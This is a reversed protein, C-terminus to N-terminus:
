SLARREGSLLPVLDVRELLGAATLPEDLEHVIALLYDEEITAASPRDLAPAVLARTRELLTQWFDRSASPGIAEDVAHATAVFRAWPMGVVPIRVALAVAGFDYFRATVEARLASAGSGITVPDLALVVPPEGFAVAKEPTGSLRARSATGALKAALAEVRGLDISYAIDFLRLAVIAGVQIAPDAHAAADTM